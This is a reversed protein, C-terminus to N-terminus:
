RRTLSLTGNEGKVKHIATVEYTEGEITVKSGLGVRQAGDPLVLQGTPGKKEVGDVEYTGEILMGGLPVRTRGIRGVTTEELEIVVHEKAPEDASAPTREPETPGSACALSLLLMM